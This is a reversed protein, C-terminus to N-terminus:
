NGRRKRMERQDILAEYLFLSVVTARCNAIAQNIEEAKQQLLRQKERHANCCVDNNHFNLTENKTRLVVENSPKDVKKGGAAPHHHHHQQQQKKEKFYRASISVGSHMFLFM